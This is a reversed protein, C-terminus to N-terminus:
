VILFALRIRFIIATFCMSSPCLSPVACFGFQRRSKIKKTHCLLYPRARMEDDRVGKYCVIVSKWTAPLEAVLYTRQMRINCFRENM